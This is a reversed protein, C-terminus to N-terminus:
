GEDGLGGMRPVKCYHHHARYISYANGSRNYTTMAPHQLSAWPVSLENWSAIYVEHKGHLILISKLLGPLGSALLEQEPVDWCFPLEVEQCMAWAAKSPLVQWWGPVRGWHSSQHRRPTSQLKEQSHGRCSSPTGWFAYLPHSTLRQLVVNWHVWGYGCDKCPSINRLGTRSHGREQTGDWNQLLHHSEIPWNRRFLTLSSNCRMLIAEWPKPWQLDIYTHIYTGHTYLYLHICTHIHTYSSSYRHMM